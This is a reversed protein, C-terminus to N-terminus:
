LLAQFRKPACLLMQFVCNNLGYLGPNHPEWSHQQCDAVSMEVSAQSVCTVYASM